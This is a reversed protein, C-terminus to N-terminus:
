GAEATLGELKELLESVGLGPDQDALFREAARRGGLARLGREGHELTFETLAGARRSRLRHATLGREGDANLMQWRRELQAVLQDLGRPPLLSSVLVVSSLLPEQENPSGFSHLAAGLERATRVAIEGLDAKTVVLIDPIEMIGAKLFQLVDGGGPQVVVVVTDAVEAVETEAQGAGITEVIVVEFAAALAEAAARTAWALGGQRNGAASSRIFV